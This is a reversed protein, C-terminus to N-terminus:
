SKRKKTYKRKASKRKTSKRKKTYKKKYGGGAGHTTDKPIEVLQDIRFWHKERKGVEEVSVFPLAGTYLVTFRMSPNNVLQVTMGDRISSRDLPIGEGPSGGTYKRKKRNYKGFDMGEVVSGEM